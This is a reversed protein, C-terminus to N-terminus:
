VGEVRVAEYVREAYAELDSECLKLDDAAAEASLSRLVDRKMLDRRWRRLRALSQEEEDLEALTFKEIAIEKAIEARFKACESRFEAWEEERARSFAEAVADASERDQPDLAFASATGGGKATLARAQDVAARGAATAPLVWAGPALPVAGNRRLDRWVAVRHRSPQAPLQVILMLWAPSSM